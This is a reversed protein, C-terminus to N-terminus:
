EGKTRSLSSLNSGLYHNDPQRMRGASPMGTLPAAGARPRRWLRAVWRALLLAVSLGFPGAAWRGLSSPRGAAAAAAAPRGTTARAARRTASVRWGPAGAGSKRVRAGHHGCRRLAVAALPCILLPASSCASLCLLCILPPPLCACPASAPLLLSLPPSASSCPLCILPPPLCACAGKFM